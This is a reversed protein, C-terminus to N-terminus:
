PAYELDTRFPQGDPTVVNALLQMEGTGDNIAQIATAPPHSYGHGPQLTVSQDTLLLRVMGQLVYLTEIGSTHPRSRGSRM